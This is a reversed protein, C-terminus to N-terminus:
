LKLALIVQDASQFTGEPLNASLWRKEGQNFEPTDACAALIESRSAPYKVHLELHKKALAVDPKTATEASASGTNAEPPPSSACGLAFLITFLNLISQTKM